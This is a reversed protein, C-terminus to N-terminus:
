EAVGQLEEEGGPPSLGQKEKEYEPTTPESLGAKALDGNFRDFYLKLNTLLYDYFMERDEDNGLIKFAKLIQSEIKQFCEYAANRGTEDEGDISFDEVPDKEEEEEKKYINIFKDDDSADPSFDLEVDSEGMAMDSGEEDEAAEVAQAPALLHKVAHLIHARFSARQEESTTLSKYDEEITPIINKLLQELKNIGTSEHPDDTTDQVAVEYILQTILNRFKLDELILARRKNLDVKRLNPM